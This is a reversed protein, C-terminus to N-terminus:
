RKKFEKEFAGHVTCSHCPVGAAAAEEMWKQTRYGTNTADIVIQSPRFIKLADTLSIKPNGSIILLDVPLERTVGKPISRDLIAVRYDFFRIFNGSVALPLYNGTIGTERVGGKLWYARNSRIGGAKMAAAAPSLDPVCSVGGGRTPEHYLLAARGGAAFMYLATRRANFVVMKSSQLREMRFAAGQISLLIAVILVMGLFVIQRRTLYLFVVAIFLYLLIMGSGTIYIGNLTSFPLREIGVIVSNLLWVLFVLVKACLLSVVPVYGVVLVLIGTYIILSSLPVVFINTLMFYNPFQHFVYLTLPLTAIQAAISVAVVSWVKDPLWASTVYLDYVPKYLVMIGTVALYSLQFGTDLLLSPDFALIFIASAAVVNYMNPSRNLSRGVIPLSLMAASRLVSPSLGTLIAYFWILLLLLIAKSLRGTKSRNMFGLLFELFLYIIGVHMGSVSLIHMAGSASYASRLEPDLEEVYGLLLAAAVAFERGEMHNDRLICLLGDRVQFAWQRIANSPTLDVVQWSWPNAFV